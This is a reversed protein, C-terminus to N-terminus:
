RPSPALTPAPATTSSSTGAPTVATPTGARQHRSRAWVTLHPVNDALTVETDQLGVLVQSGGGDWWLVTGAPVDLTLPRRSRGHRRVEVIPDGGCYPAAAALWDAWTDRLEAVGEPWVRTTASAVFWEYDDHVGYGEGDGLRSWQQKWATPRAFLEDCVWRMRDVLAPSVVEDTEVVRM